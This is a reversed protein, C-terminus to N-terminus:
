KRKLVSDHARDDSLSPVVHNSHLLINMSNKLIKYKMIKEIAVLALKQGKRKEYTKFILSCRRKTLGDLTNFMEMAKSNHLTLDQSTIPRTIQSQSTESTKDAKKKYLKILAEYKQLLSDKQSCSNCCDTELYHSNLM